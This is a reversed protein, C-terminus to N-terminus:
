ARAELITSAFERHQEQLRTWALEVPSPGVTPGRVINEEHSLLRMMPGDLAPSPSPLRTKGCETCVQARVKVGGSWTEVYIPMEQYTHACPIAKVPRM